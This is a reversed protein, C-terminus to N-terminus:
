WCDTELAGTSTTRAGKQDLGLTGCKTDKALQRGKPTATLKFASASPTGDFAITYFQSLDADCTPATAGVYTMNTTYFREVLQAGQQLCVAAASRRSKVVYSEYSAFAIAALIGVILVVIMIEILTFGRQRSPACLFPRM